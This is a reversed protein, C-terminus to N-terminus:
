TLYQRVQQAALHCDIKNLNIRDPARDEDRSLLSVVCTAFDVYAHRDQRPGRFSMRGTAWAMTLGPDGSPALANLFAILVVHQLTM